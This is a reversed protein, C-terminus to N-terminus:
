DTNCTFQGLCGTLDTCPDFQETRKCYNYRDCARKEVEISDRCAVAGGGRPGAADDTGFLTRSHLVTPVLLFAFLFFFSVLLCCVRDFLKLTKM